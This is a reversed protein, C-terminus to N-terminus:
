IDAILKEDVSSDALIADTIFFQVPMGHANMTLHTKTNVGGYRWLCEEILFLMLLEKSSFSYLEVHNHCVCNCAECDREFCM